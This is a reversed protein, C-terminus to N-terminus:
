GGVAIKSVYGTLFELAGAASGGGSLGNFALALAVWFVSWGASERLSPSHDHRHFVFLDLTLLVTM